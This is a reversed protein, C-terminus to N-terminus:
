VDLDAMWGGRATVWKGKRVIQPFGLGYGAAAEFVGWAQSALIGSLVLDGKKALMKSVVPFAEILVTSFINALVVDYKKRPKYKLVDVEETVIGEVRNRAANRATVQVAFPDYDCAFVDGAGLKRAAIALVGTGCGLDACSWGAERGEGIDVLLRLCTSTTAHDGTGFAMEPPISILERGAHEAALVKLEAKREEQTVLFRGRIKLPPSVELPKQWESNRIERVRGGFRERIAEASKRNECFVEVRLSKGGKLLHIVLNPNGHFREEWADM